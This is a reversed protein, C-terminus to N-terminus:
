CALYREMTDKRSLEINAIPIIYDRAIFDHNAAYWGHIEKSTYAALEPVWRKIYVCDPDFKKQQLWPNFVRFYPSADCGTGAVWQWNGNNISRDVDVLYKAFHAEGVRWDIHLNKILLSAAIMRVRGHMFGTQLLQRMGADVIPFGTRGNKWATLLNANDDWKLKDYKSHFAKSYVHPFNWGIQTFFDRWHLERELDSGAGLHEQWYTMVERASLTGFKLHASLLSTADKAPFDRDMAYAITSSKHLLKLGANRGGVIISAYKFQKSSELFQFAKQHSQQLLTNNTLANQIDITNVWKGKAQSHPAPVPLHRARNYYPTFVTYPTGQGSVVTGPAHLPIDTVRSLHINQDECFEAIRGDRERSLMSYDVHFFVADASTANHLLALVDHPVGYLYLLKGKQDQIARDLEALCQHLFCIAFPNHEEEKEGILAPDFIFIPLVSECETLAANLARNDVLRLGRRFIFLGLKYKKM